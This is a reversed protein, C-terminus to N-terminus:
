KRKIAEIQEEMEGELKQKKAKGMMRLETLHDEMKDFTYGNIQMKRNIVSANEYAEDDRDRNIKIRLDGIDAEIDKQKEAWDEIKSKDIKMGPPPQPKDKDDDSQM